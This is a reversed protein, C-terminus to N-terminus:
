CISYLYINKYTKDQMWFLIFHVFFNDKYDIHSKLSIAMFFPLTDFEKKFSINHNGVGIGIPCEM